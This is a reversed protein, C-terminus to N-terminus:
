KRRKPPNPYDGPDFLSHGKADLHISSKTIKARHNSPIKIESYVEWETGVDILDNDISKNALCLNSNLPKYDSGGDPTIEFITGDKLKGV